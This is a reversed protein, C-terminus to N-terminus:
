KGNVTTLLTIQNRKLTNGILTILIIKYYTKKKKIHKTTNCM